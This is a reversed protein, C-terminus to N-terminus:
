EYHTDHIECQSNNTSLIACPGNLHVPITSIWKVKKTQAIQLIQEVWFELKFIVGINTWPNSHVNNTAMESESIWHKFIDDWITMSKSFLVIWLRYIVKSM